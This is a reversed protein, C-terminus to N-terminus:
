LAGLTARVTRRVDSARVMPFCKEAASAPGHQNSRPLRQLKQRASMAVLSKATPLMKWSRRCGSWCAFREFLAALRLGGSAGGGTGGPSGNSLLRAGSRGIRSAESLSFSTTKRLSDCKTGVCRPCLGEFSRQITM